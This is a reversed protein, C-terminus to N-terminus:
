AMIKKKFFFLMIQFFLNMKNLTIHFFAQMLANWIALIIDINVLM